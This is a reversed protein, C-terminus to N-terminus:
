LGLIEHKKTDFEEQTLIGMDLLDKLKKLTEVQDDFSPQAPQQQAGAAGQTGQAAAGQAGVAVSANLPNLSGALGMGFLLGGADGFGNERVGEAISQQAAIDAAQRSVDEYAAVSMRRQAFERVLERSEDSFEINEIALSVLKLGFREEWTSANAPGTAILKVIEDAHSPLHSIRCTQSLSNVAMTFSHLLEGILQARAGPSDFSYDVVNGPVFACLFRTADCVQVSFTGYAFIELDTGYFLDNYVLPGRTGFKLGRVERMNVFAVRKEESSMGSFVVRGVAANVLGGIGQEEISRMDLISFEGNRYEYGGSQEIVVEIGARSYVFAVTNEPVFIISGNSIVDPSGLNRGRGNQQVKRVGPVVVSHECFKGAVIIDKWQDAFLGSFSDTIADLIAM